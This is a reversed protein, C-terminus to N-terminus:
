MSNVQCYEKLLLSCIVTIKSLNIVIDSTNRNPCKRFYHYQTFNNIKIPFILNVKGEKTDLEVLEWPM